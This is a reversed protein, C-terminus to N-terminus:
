IFSFFQLSQKSVFKFLKILRPFCGSALLKFFLNVDFSILIDSCSQKQLFQLVTCIFSVTLGFIKNLFYKQCVEVEVVAFFNLLM